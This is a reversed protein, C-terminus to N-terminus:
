ERRSLIPDGVLASHFPDDFPELLHGDGGDGLHVAHGSAATAQNRQGAIEADTRGRGSEADRDRAGQAVAEGGRVAGPEDIQDARRTGFLEEEGSSEEVRRLRV